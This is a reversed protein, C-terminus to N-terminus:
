HNASIELNTFREINTSASISGLSGSSHGDCRRKRTCSGRPTPRCPFSTRSACSWRRLCISCWSCAAPISAVSRRKGRRRPRLTRLHFTERVHQSDARHVEHLLLYSLINQIILHVISDVVHYQSRRNWGVKHHFDVVVVRFESGTLGQRLKSM